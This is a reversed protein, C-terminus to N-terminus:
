GRLGTDLAYFLANLRNKGLQRAPMRQLVAGVEPPAHELAWRVADDGISPDGGGALELGLAAYGPPGVIHKTQGADALPHTYAIAATLMAANAVAAPAPEPTERAAAFAAWALTRLRKSRKERVAFARAGELCARPRAGGPAHAEYVPLAREVCDAAWAAMARLEDLSLEIEAARAM